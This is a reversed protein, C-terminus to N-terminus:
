RRGKRRGTFLYVILGVVLALVIINSFGGIAIIGFFALLWLVLLLAAIEQFPRPLVTIAWVILLFFFLKYITIDQNFLTLLHLNFVAIKFYELLWLAVVFVLIALVM